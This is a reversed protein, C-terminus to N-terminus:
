MSVSRRPVPCSAEKCTPGWVPGTNPSRADQVPLARSDFPRLFHSTDENVRCFSAGPSQSRVVVSALALDRRPHSDRRSRGCRRAGRGISAGNWTPAIRSEGARWAHTQDEDAKVLIRRPASARSAIDNSVQSADAFHKARGLGGTPDRNAAGDAEAPPVVPKARMAAGRGSMPVPIGDATQRPVGASPLLASTRLM